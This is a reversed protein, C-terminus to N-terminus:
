QGDGSNSNDDLNPLSSQRKSHPPKLTHRFFLEYVFTAGCIPVEKCQCYLETTTENLRNWKVIVSKGGCHPCLVRM